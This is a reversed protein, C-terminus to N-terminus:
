SIPIFDKLNSRMFKLAFAIHYKVTETSINLRLAIEKNTHYDIRSLIFVERARKPLLKTHKHLATHLEQYYVHDITTNNAPNNEKLLDQSYQNAQKYLKMYDLSIYRVASYIYSSFKKDIVIIKRREWINTFVDQVIEEAIPLSRINRHVFHILKDRYRLYLEDFSKEQGQQLMTILEEDTHSTYM